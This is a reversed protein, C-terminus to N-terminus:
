AKRSRHNIVSTTSLFRKLFYQGLSSGALRMVADRVALRWNSEPVFWKAVRRGAKQKKSIEPRLRQEYKVMALPINEPSQVLEDALIFAGAMALSAGQGAALSVCQCADGLLVVRGRSWGPMEIQSVNDFYIGVHDTQELLEPVIWGLEGYVRHLEDRAATSSFDRIPQDASHIFFTAVRDGRIPYIGVQKRPVTMTYFANGIGFSETSRDIIFAATHYGLYRTFSEERDFILQRVRSHVGDAGIVLDFTEAPGESFDACVKDAEFNLWKITTGFRIPVTDAIEAHLVRGLEGRMFNFHRNDFIKRFAPYSVSFKEGGSADLFALRSIPYHIQALSRWFEWGKASTTVRAFFDIMYGDDRLSPSKEVM